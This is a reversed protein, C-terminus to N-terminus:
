QSGPYVDPGYFDRIRKLFDGSPTAYTLRKSTFRGTHARLKVAMEAMKILEVIGNLIPTREIEYIRSEVLYAIIDGGAPIIVEAGKQLLRQTADMFRAIIKERGQKDVYRLELPSTDLPEVGVLQRELGYRRANELMLPKWRESIIVLGFSAGMMCALHMSTESLGLCPINVVERAEALGADSINGVLFADFGEKEAKIANRIVEGTDQHELFKYHVGIGAAQLIGEIHVETGPDACSAIVNKLLAGYPTSQNERALSQYWLRM